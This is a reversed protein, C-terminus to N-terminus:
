LQSHFYGKVELSDTLDSLSDVSLLTLCRSGKLSGLSRSPCIQSAGVAVGSQLDRPLVALSAFVESSLSLLARRVGGPLQGDSM